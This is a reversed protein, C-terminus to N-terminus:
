GTRDQRNSPIASFIGTNFESTSLRCADDETIQLWSETIIAVNINNSLFYDVRTGDNDCTSKANLLSM